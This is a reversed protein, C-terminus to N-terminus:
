YKKVFYHHIQHAIKQSGAITHSGAFEGSFSWCARESAITRKIRVPIDADTPLWITGPRMDLCVWTEDWAILDRFNYRGQAQLVDLLQRARELWKVRLDEDLFRPVWNFHRRKMNLSTTHHLYPTSAHDKLFEAITWVSSWPEAKLVQLIRADIDELSSPRDSLDSCYLKIEHPWHKVKNEDFPDEHCVAALEAVIAPLKM